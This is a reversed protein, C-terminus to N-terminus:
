LATDAEVKASLSASCNWQCITGDAVEPRKVVTKRRQKTARGFGKNDAM